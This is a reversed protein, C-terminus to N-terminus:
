TLERHIIYKLITDFIKVIRTFFYSLINPFFEVFTM